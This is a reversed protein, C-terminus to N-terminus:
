CSHFQAIWNTLVTQLADGLVLPHTNGSLDIETAGSLQWKGGTVVLRVASSSNKPGM